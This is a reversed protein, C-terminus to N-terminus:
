YFRGIQIKSNRFIFILHKIHYNNGLINFDLYRQQLLDVLELAEPFAWPNVM